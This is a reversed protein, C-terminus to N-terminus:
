ILTSQGARIFTVPQQLEPVQGETLAAGNSLHDNSWVDSFLGYDPLMAKDQSWTWDYGQTQYAHPDPYPPQYYGPEPM